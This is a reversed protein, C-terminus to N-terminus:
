WLKPKKCPRDPEVAKSKGKGTGNSSAELGVTDYVDRERVCVCVCVCMCARVCAHICVCVGQKLAGDMGEETSKLQDMYDRDDFTHKPGARKRELRQRKEEAEKRKREPEEAAWKALRDYYRMVSM